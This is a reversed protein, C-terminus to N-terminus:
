VQNMKEVDRASVENAQAQAASVLKLYRREHSAWVMALVLMAALLAFVVNMLVTASVAYMTLTGPEFLRQEIRGVVTFPNVSLPWFLFFAAWALVLSLLAAPLVYLGMIRRAKRREVFLLDSQSAPM